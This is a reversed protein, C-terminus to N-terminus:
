IASSLTEGGKVMAKSLLQILTRLLYKKTHFVHVDSFYFFHVAEQGTVQTSCLLTLTSWISIKLLRLLMM